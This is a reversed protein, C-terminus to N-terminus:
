KRSRHMKKYKQCPIVNVNAMRRQQYLSLFCKKAEFSSAIVREEMIAVM